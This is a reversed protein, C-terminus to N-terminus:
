SGPARLLGSRYALAVAEARGRVGLKRYISTSHHMVTKTSLFLEGAIQANTQGSAIAALIQLERATIASRPGDKSQRGNQAPLGGPASLATNGAGTAVPGATVLAARRAAHEVSAPSNGSELGPSVETATNDARGLETVVDMATSRLWGWGHGTSRRGAPLGAALRADRLAKVYESILVAPMSREISPLEEGLADDLGIADLQRGSRAALFAAGWASQVEGFAYGIRRAEVMAQRLRRAAEATLALETLIAALYNL